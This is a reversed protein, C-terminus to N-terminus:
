SDQAKTASNWGKPSRLPTEKETPAEPWRKGFRQNNAM